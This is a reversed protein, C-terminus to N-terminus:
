RSYVLNNVCRGYMPHQQEQIGQPLGQVRGSGIPPDSDFGRPRGASAM